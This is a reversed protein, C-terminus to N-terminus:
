KGRGFLFYAAIQAGLYFGICVVLVILITKM